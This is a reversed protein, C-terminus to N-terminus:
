ATGEIIGALKGVPNELGAKHQKVFRRLGPATPAYSMVTGSSCCGRATRVDKDGSCEPCRVRSGHTARYLKRADRMTTTTEM